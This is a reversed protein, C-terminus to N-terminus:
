VVGGFASGAFSLVPSSPKCHRHSASQLSLGFTFGIRCFQMHPTQVLWGFFMFLKPEVVAPSVAWAGKWGAAAKGVLALGVQLAFRRM